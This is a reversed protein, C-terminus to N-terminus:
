SYYAKRCPFYGQAGGIVTHTHLDKIAAAHFHGFSCKFPPTIGGKLHEDAHINMEKGTQQV